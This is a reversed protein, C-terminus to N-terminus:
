ENEPPLDQKLYFAILINADEVEVNIETYYALAEESTIRGDKLARSVDRMTYTKRKDITGAIVIQAIENVYQSRIGAINLQAKIENINLDVKKALKTVASIIRREKDLYRKDLATDVFYDLWTKINAKPITGDKTLNNTEIYQDRTIGSAMELESLAEDRDISTKIIRQFVNDVLPAKSAYPYKRRWIELVFEADTTSYGIDKLRGIFWSDPKLGYVYGGQLTTINLNTFGIAKFRNIWFPAQEHLKMGEDVHKETVALDSHTLGLDKLIGENVDNRNEDFRFWMDMIQLPSPHNWHAIWYKQTEVDPVGYSRMLNRYPDPLEQDLGFLTYINKEFAEKSMFQDIDSKTPIPRNAEFLKDAETKDYGIKYTAAYYDALIQTFDLDSYALPVDLNDNNMVLEFQKAIRISVAELATIHSKTNYYALKAQNPSFGMERMYEFYQKESIYGLRAAERYNGEGLLTVPLNDNNERAAVRGAGSPFISSGGSFFDIVGGAIFDILNGM